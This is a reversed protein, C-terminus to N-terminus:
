DFYKYKRKKVIFPTGNKYKVCKTWNGKKDYDYQYTIIEIIENKPFSGYREKVINDNEDYSYTIIKETGKLSSNQSLYCGIIWKVIRGKTDFEFCEKSHEKNNYINYVEILNNDNDYKFTTEYNLETEGIYHETKVLKKNEYLYIWKEYVYQGYEEMWERAEYHRVIKENEKNSYTFKSKVCKSLFNFSCNRFGIQNDNTDYQYTIINDLKSSSYDLRKLEILNGKKNFTYKEKGSYETRYKIQEITNRKKKALNTTEEFCMVQGKLNQEQWNSIRLHGEKNHANYVQSYINISSLIVICTIILKLKM